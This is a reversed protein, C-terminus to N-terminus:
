RRFKRSWAIMRDAIRDAPVVEIAGGKRILADPMGFVVSSQESEALTHAGAHRLETFANDGDYGMGTLMVAMVNAPKCTKLASIGLREVSPHWLFEADEPKPMASLRTGRRSLLIDHGGQAIYIHGNCLVTPSNIEEVKLACVRDLRDALSRTFSQPMHQAILLPCPLDAPLNPLIDELTRPGGTSVGVIILPDDVNLENYNPIGPKLDGSIGAPQQIARSSTRASRSETSAATRTTRASSRTAPQEAQRASASAAASRSPKKLRARAASRVKRILDKHIADLSLSITGGPKAVFDIAGLNLAEFTALAGRETLSSVMVVPVPREAMMISLAELGDMEPMNIDLTVVDPEISTNMAVAEAGNRAVHIDYGGVEEFVSTLHRRMLASDDVILLKTM